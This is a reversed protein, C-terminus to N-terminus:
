CTSYFPLMMLYAFNISYDIITKSVFSGMIQVVTDFFIM